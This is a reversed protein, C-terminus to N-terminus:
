SDAPITEGTTLRRDRRPRVRSPTISPGAASGRRRRRRWPPRPPPAAVQLVLAEGDLRHGVARAASSRASAAGGSRTTSSRISGPCPRGPPTGAAAPAPAPGWRHHQGGPALLAIPDDPQLDAGVVVHGLRERGLLQDGPHPGHQAPGPARQRRDGPSARPGHRRRARPRCRRGRPAADVAVTTASVARSNSSSAKRARWGRWAKLRSSIRSCRTPSGSRRCTWPSPGRGAGAPSSRPRGPAGRACRSPRPRRSGSPASSGATARRSGRGVPTTTPRPQRDGRSDAAAARGARRAVCDTSTPILKPTASPPRRPQAPGRQTRQRAARHHHREDRGRGHREPAAPPRTRSTRISGRGSRGPRPRHGARPGDAHQAAKARPWRAPAPGGGPRRGHGGPLAASSRLRRSSTAHTVWSRRVGSAPM